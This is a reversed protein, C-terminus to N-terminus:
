EQWSRRQKSGTQAEDVPSCSWSAENSVMPTDVCAPHVSNVRISHPALEIALARMLGTVGHKAATYHALNPFAILGAVSSTLIVSGGAGREIMAPATAKVTKWAGTLNIDVMTQWTNEDLELASGFSAIGANAIVIDIKGFHEAGEAAVAQLASLDRVDVKLCVIRRGLAEVEKATQTLDDESAGNYPVTAIDTCIDVAIIDAGEEALKIAHSRGQGRAAGTIFAVKNEVRTM